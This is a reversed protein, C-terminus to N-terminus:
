KSTTTALPRHHPGGSSDIAGAATRPVVLGISEVPRAVVRQHRGHTITLPTSKRTMTMLAHRAVSIAPCRSRRRPPPSCGRDVPRPWRRWPPPPPERHGPVAPRVTPGPQQHGDGAPRPRGALQDPAVDLEDPAFLDRLDRDRVQEEQREGRHHREGDPRGATPVGIPQARQQVGEDDAHRQERDTPRGRDVVDRGCVSSPPRSPTSILRAYGHPSMTTSVMTSSPRSGRCARLPRAQRRDGGRHCQDRYRVPEIGVERRRAREVRSRHGPEAPDDPEPQDTAGRQGACRRRLPSASPQPGPAPDPARDAHDRSRQPFPIREPRVPLARLSASGRAHQGVNRQGDRQDDNGRVPVPSPLSRTVPM